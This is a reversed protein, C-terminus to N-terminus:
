RAAVPEPSPGASAGSPAEPTWTPPRGPVDYERSASARYAVVEARQRDADWGLEAGLLAAVRPAIAGARDPQAMALRMRRALVDDLSLALEERAAWTVEAELHPIGDGLQRLGQTERGLAVIRRAATGHREVLMECSSRPLSTSAFLESALHDLEPRAAAGDLALDATGSPPTAARGELAVDVADRAMLRYTTYKGGSVRVLGSPERLVKHERSVRVSDGGPHGVLPRLGAYAGVADDRTLGVDLVDNVMGLIEDVDADSPAVRDPSGRDPEDTTGVIWAGAWPIIFLVRGPIRLTMGAELPLRERPVVIHSGRSPVLGLGVEGLSTASSGAWVGTADVVAGARVELEGGSVVDRVRVGTVRGFRDVIPEEARARTVAVAGRALATRLVALALRADDEVGDHYTIGGRLSARRIPPALRAVAGAGLHHARGGDRAAGLLDYLVLGSGYFARHVIPWGYVPFLFRELRVLHPALRLLRTRETLAERVLGFRLDELYRLGGHILRSSRSSTGSAVDDQEVLAARLGRSTADLLAGAGVIGGGVILVDVPEDALRELSARRSALPDLSARRSALPDPARRGEVVGPEPPRREHPRGPGDM